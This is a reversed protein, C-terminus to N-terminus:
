NYYFTIWNTSYDHTKPHMIHVMGANDRYWAYNWGKGPQLYLAHTVGYDMVSRVFFDFDQLRRSEVICLMGDKECLARFRSRGKVHSPCRRGNYVLMIQSFAMGGTDAAKTISDSHCSPIFRWYDGYFVFSGTNSSCAYGNYFVGGSVHDGAINAHSFTEQQEGTFAAACCMVVDTENIRPMQECVLDVRSFQPYYVTLQSTSDIIIYPDAATTEAVVTQSKEECGVIAALIFVAVIWTCNRMRKCLYSYTLSICFFNGFKKQMASRLYRRRLWLYSYTLSFGFKKQMASRSCGRTPASGRTQGFLSSCHGRKGGGYRSPMETECGLHGIFM